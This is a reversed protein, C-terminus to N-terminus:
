NRSMAHNRKKEFLAYRKVREGLTFKYMRRGNMPPAQAAALAVLQLCKDHTTPSICSEGCELTPEGLDVAAVTSWIRDWRPAFEVNRGGLAFEISKEILLSAALLSRHSSHFPPRGRLHKRRRWCFRLQSAIACTLWAFRVVLPDAEWCTSFTATLLECQLVLNCLHAVRNKGAAHSTAGSTNDAQVCSVRGPLFRLLVEGPLSPTPRLSFADGLLRIHLSQLLSSGWLLPAGQLFAIVAALPSLM